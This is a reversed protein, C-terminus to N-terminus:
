PIQNESIAHLNYSTPHQVHVHFMTYDRLLGISLCFPLLLYLLVFFTFSWFWQVSLWLASHLLSLSSNSSSLSAFM